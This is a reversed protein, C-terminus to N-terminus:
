TEAEDSPVIAAVFEIGPYRFRHPVGGEDLRRQLFVEAERIISEADRGSLTPCSAPRTSAGRRVPLANLRKLLPGDTLLLTDTHEPGSGGGNDTRGLVGITVAQPAGAEVSERNYVRFVVLPEALISRPLATVVADRRAADELATDVLPHGVGLLTLVEEERQRPANRDFTVGQYESRIAPHATRWTDPTKFSLTAGDLADALPRRGSLLLSTEFFPRLDALDVDPLLRSVQQFDFRRSNGVIDRVAEVVDQGGIRATTTDFWQDLRERNRAAGAFLDTFIGQSTMGLVLQMMDEPEDMVQGVALTISELKETLKDWIRSEVTDPNRLTLVDVRERQGYRNLRGVRQHLRMPNWPLDVHILTHCREQLDIGEGAAETGVLFRVAGRNFRAAASQRDESLDQITGDPLRVEQAIGDGNIFAVCGDGFRAMLASMLLSQTAKYETFFLVSRGAFPGNEGVAELITRIKTEDVVTESAALLERLAPEENEMLRVAARSEAIQEELRALADGTYDDGARSAYDAYQRTLVELEERRHAVGGIRRRIARRIAAVSSSALKQLTILVLMVAQGETRSSLRGAYAEGRLIFETLLRYFREEEPAYEYTESRVRPTQFLRRGRLDTVNGKNNRIMVEPLRDLQERLPRTVEFLDSRLLSLLSLFNYEKGRHPTGTFFVLSEIRRADQLAQLLQYGLTAGAREDDNLHHAEDVVGKRALERLVFHAGIRLIPGIPPADARSPSIRPNLVFDMGFKTYGHDIATFSHIYEELKGSVFLFPLFYRVWHLYEAEQLQSEIWIEISRLVATREEMRAAAMQRLWGGSQCLALFNRHQGSRARGMAELAGRVLLTLWAERRDIPNVDRATLALFFAGGDPYLIKDFQGLRAGGVQKWQHAIRQLEEGVETRSYFAEAPTGAGHAGGPIFIGRGDPLTVWRGAVTGQDGTNQEEPATQIAGLREVMEAASRSLRAIVVHSVDRNAVDALWTGATSGQLFQAVRAGHKGRELYELFAAQTEPDDSARGWSALLEATVFRNQQQTDRCVLFLAVSAPDEAYCADLRHSRPAFATRLVEDEADGRDRDSQYDATPLLLEFAPRYGGEASRFRLARLARRLREAEDRVEARVDSDAADLFRRTFLVGLSSAVAPAVDGGPVAWALATEMTLPQPSGETTVSGAADLRHWVRSYSAVRGPAVRSEIGHWSAVVAFRQEEDLLGRTIYQVDGIRTLTRYAGPLATPLTLRDRLLRAYGHGRAWLIRGLLRAATESVSAPTPSLVHWLSEWFHVPELDPALDLDGRITSWPIDALAILTAGLSSGFQDAIRDNEANGAAIQARGVDLLFGGNVAFGASTGDRTPATVWFTPTGPPLTLFGNSGIRLLLGDSAYGTDQEGPAYPPRLHLLRMGAVDGVYAPTAKAEALLPRPSWQHRTPRADGGPVLDCCHIRRAFVLLLPALQQFRTMATRVDGDPEPAVRQTLYTVTAESAPRMAHIHARRLADLCEYENEVLRVPFVGGRIAFGLEGSLVLPADTLLFVCKFGLGFKGTVPTATEDAQKDSGQLILMKELDRDFGRL